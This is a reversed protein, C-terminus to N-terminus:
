SLDSAYDVSSDTESTDAESTDAQEADEIIINESADEVIEDGWMNALHKKCQLHRTRNKKRVFVKCTNCYIKLKGYDKMYDKRFQEKEDPNNFARRENLPPNYKDLYKQEFERPLIGDVSEFTSLISCQINDWGCNNIYKYLPFHNKCPRKLCGKHQSLRANLNSTSGIYFQEPNNIDQLKYITIMYM